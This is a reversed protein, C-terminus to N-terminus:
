SFKYFRHNTHRISKSNFTSIILENKGNLGFILFLLNAM